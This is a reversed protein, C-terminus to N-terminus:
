NEATAFGIEVPVLGCPISPPPTALDKKSNNIPFIKLGKLFRYEPLNKNFFIQALLHGLIIEWSRSVRGGGGKDREGGGGGGGGTM